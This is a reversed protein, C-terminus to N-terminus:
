KLTASRLCSPIFSQSNNRQSVTSTSHLLVKAYCKVETELVAHRCMLYKIARM